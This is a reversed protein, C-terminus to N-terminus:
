QKPNNDDDHLHQAVHQGRHHRHALVHHRPVRAHLLGDDVCHVTDPVEHLRLAGEHLGVDHWQRPEKEGDQAVVVELGAGTALRGIRQDGEDRLLRAGEVLLAQQVDGQRDDHAHDRQVVGFLFPVDDPLRPGLTLWLAWPLPLLLPATGRTHAEARQPHRVGMMAMVM